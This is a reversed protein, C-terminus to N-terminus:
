LFMSGCEPCLEVTIGDSEDQRYAAGCRPCTHESPSSAELRRLQESSQPQAGMSSMGRLANGFAGGTAPPPAAFSAGSATVVFEGAGSDTAAPQAQQADQAMQALRAARQAAALLPSDEGPDLFVGGCCDSREVTLAGTPAIVRYSTMPQGHLPCLRGSRGLANGSGPGGGFIVGVDVDKAAADEPAIFVSGCNPCADYGVGVLRATTM